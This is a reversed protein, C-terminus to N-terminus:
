GKNLKVGSRSKKNILMFISTVLLGLIFQPVIYSILTSTFLPITEYSKRFDSIQQDIKEVATNSEQLSITWVEAVQDVWSPDIYRTYIFMYTQFILRSILIMGIVM